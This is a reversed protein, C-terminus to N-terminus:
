EGVTKRSDDLVHIQDYLVNGAGIDGSLAQLEDVKLMLLKDGTIGRERLVAVAQKCAEPKLPLPLSPSVEQLTSESWTCVDEVNWKKIDRNM